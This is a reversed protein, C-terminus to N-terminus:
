REFERKGILTARTFNTRLPTTKESIFIWQKWLQDIDNTSM